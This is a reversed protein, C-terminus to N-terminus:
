STFGKDKAFRMLEPTSHIGLKIMIKARYLKVTLPSLELERAVIANNKGEGFLTLLQQERLSLLKSFDTPDKRMAMRIRQVTSSFYQRGEMVVFIAEKLVELPQENKDVFGYVNSRLARYVTFEDAHSTLAIVRGQPAAANIQPIFDLGDGDPLALDLFIIEPQFERCLAIGEGGSSAGRIEAGRAVNGCAVILLDQILKHDEIVIIKM